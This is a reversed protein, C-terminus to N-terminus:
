ATRHLGDSATDPEDTTHLHRLVSQVLGAVEEDVSKFYISRTAVVRAGKREFRVALENEMRATRTAMDAFTYPFFRYTCFVGVPRGNMPALSEIWGMMRLTMENNLPERGPVWCGAIIADAVDVDAPTAEDISRVLTSLGQSDAAEAIAEAASCAKGHQGGHVVLVKLGDDAIHTRSPAPTSLTIDSKHAPRRIPNPTEPEVTTSADCRQSCWGHALAWTMLSQNPTITYM